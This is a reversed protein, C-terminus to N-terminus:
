LLWFKGSLRIINYYLYLLSAALGNPTVKHAGSSKVKGITSLVMVSILSFEVGEDEDDDEESDDDDKSDDDDEDAGFVGTNLLFWFLFRSSESFSSFCDWFFFRSEWLLLRSSDDSSSWCNILYRSLYIFLVLYSEEKRKKYRIRNM